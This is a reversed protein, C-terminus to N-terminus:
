RLAHRTGGQQRALRRQTRIGDAIVGALVLVMGVLVVLHAAHEAIPFSGIRADGVHSVFDHEVFDFLLGFAIVVAGLRSAGPVPRRAATAAPQSPSPAIPMPVSREIALKHKNYLRGQM